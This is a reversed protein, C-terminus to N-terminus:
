IWGFLLSIVSILFGNFFFGFDLLLRRYYRMANREDSRVFLSFDIALVILSCVCNGMLFYKIM